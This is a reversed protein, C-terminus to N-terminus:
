KEMEGALDIEKEERQSAGKKKKEGKLLDFKKLDKSCEL